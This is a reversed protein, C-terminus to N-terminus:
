FLIQLHSHLVLAPDPAVQVQLPFAIEDPCCSMFVWGMPTSM